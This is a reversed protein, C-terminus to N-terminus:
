EVSPGTLVHVSSQRCIPLGDVHHKM